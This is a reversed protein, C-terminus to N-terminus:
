ESRSWWVDGSEWRLRVSPRKERLPATVARARLHTLAPAKVWLLTGNTRRFAGRNGLPSYVAKKAGKPTLQGVTLLLLRGLM